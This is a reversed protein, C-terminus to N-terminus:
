RRPKILIVKKNNEEEKEAYQVEGTNMDYITYLKNPDPNFKMASNMRDLEEQYYANVYDEILDSIKVLKRKNM